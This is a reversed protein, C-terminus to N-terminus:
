NTTMKQLRLDRAKLQINTVGQWTNEEISFLLELPIGQVQSQQLTDFHEHMGFGIVEMAQRSQNRQRVWFKLHTGDRGLRRPKGALELDDAQFVPQMNAPGFPEFQRLVSWFRKDVDNLNLHADVDIAPTLVEPTIMQGLAENFRERFAIINEEGLAMGAAFDHGGFTTLLDACQKLAEYINIGNISRASGKVVGNVTTLMIAPRYFREVLRSAVIGIVGPHWGADHVVIGHQLTGSLQREAKIAAEGLTSRDMERRKENTQELERAIDLASQPDTAMLLAVARQADGLRGAANIRPGIGFVIQSTACSALDLGAVEALTRIGLGPDTRIRRLGEVMLVRNEGELPVIDRDTSIAVLDLYRYALEAHEGMQMLLAQAVKFGIGCGSLEKFPYPCGKRKPDLVAIADPLEDAPKHHDCIILDLGQARAYAAEKVATIGCDLAVILSAGRAVAQDIGAECLGYGDEIRDPIWFSADVQIDRLFSTMLATATTGDVDYDGYVMVNEGQERAQLIRKVAAEMDLMLFPDHLQAMGPRFYLRAEDFTAIGRLVLSRALAEPLDNLQHALQRTLHPDPDAQLLWRNRM